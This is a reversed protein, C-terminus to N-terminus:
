WEVDCFVVKIAFTQDTNSTQPTGLIILVSSFSAMYNYAIKVNMFRSVHLIIGGLWVM